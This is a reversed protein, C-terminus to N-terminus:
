PRRLLAEATWVQGNKVVVRVRRADAVNRLPDGEVAILDALMGPAVRGLDQSAGLAEAPVVTAARLAEVPSLGGEVMHLLETHLSVGYPIIPSDTGAIVRGGAEVVRRVTEALPAIRAARRALDQRTQEARPGLYRLDEAFFARMRPDALITSDRAIAVPFGGMIGITPTLTMGSAALLQIVDDYSRNLQSVKPSYGRRSTGRIHEVGDAGFAVAPYIEHSTVPIGSTHAAAIVRRQLLDPLRVYTKVLDYGLEGPRGLERALQAGGDLTLPGAYYIRTGDFIRGTSFERPGIRVGSEVAERRELPALTESSPDRIATVGYALWIRGLAEGVGYGQHSHMEILGPLVTLRSADVVSDGHLQARHPTVERIRHGEVVVDMNRRATSGTGDWLRGAHVVYLATPNRRQWALKVPIADVSGDDFRVRKLGEAGQYVVSRSDGTWSLADPLDDALRKPPGAPDGSRSVDMTWLSGDTVFAMRRGDPSWVPGDTGRSGISRLPWPTVYRVSDGNLPILLVQNRGERFRMSYRRLASVAIVGGDPSWTPRGPGFLDSRIVRTTGSAVELLRLDGGLGEVTLFALRSGDPSWSPYAVGSPVSTIRRTAGNAMERVWIDMTGDLDSVYALRTGDASWVPDAEVSPGTTLRVPEGGDIPLLWLDGLAVFAIRTGDPSVAPNLIGRVPTPEASDFDRRRRQYPERSFALVARFEILGATANTLTRRKIKGDATYLLEDPSVWAARFPFVDETTSVATPKGDAGISAEIVLLRSQDGEIQNVSIRRGDPSWAPGALEGSLRTVLRENGDGGRIWLGPGATRSSVFAIEDGRPSFAPGFDEASHTTLQRLAGSRVELDWLDYNGGRDSAFVIRRGDPSWHPERDDYPGTTLQELGTGDPRVTWIHWEGDRFSQFTIKSGDPAWAPQRVDGLEDTIVRAEVGATPMVWLRGQLDFVLARGDPSLAAAINTGETLTVRVERAQQAAGVTVPALFAVTAVFWRRLARLM